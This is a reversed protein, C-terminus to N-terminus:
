APNDIEIFQHGLGLRGAVQAAVAPAGYRPEFLAASRGSAHHALAEGAETTVVGRPLRELLVVGADDEIRRLRESASALAM